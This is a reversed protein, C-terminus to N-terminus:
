ESGNQRRVFYYIVVVLLLAIAAVVGENDFGGLEVILFKFVAYSILYLVLYKAIDKFASWVRQLIDQSSEDPPPPNSSNPM